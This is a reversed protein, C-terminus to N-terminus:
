VTAPTYQALTEVQQKNLFGLRGLKHIINYNTAFVMDMGTGGVYFAFDDNFSYGLAKLFAYFNLYSYQGNYKSKEPAIFKMRRSMGSRSVSTIICLMRRDKIAKIYRKGDNIFQEVSYFENDNIAKRIKKDEEIRKTIRDIKKM